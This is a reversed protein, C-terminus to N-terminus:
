DLVDLPPADYWFRRRSHRAERIVVRGKSFTMEVAGSTSTNFQRIGRVQYRRRVSNHPHGFPSFYAASHIVWHPAVKNLFAPSSSSRSGHHPSILLTAPEILNLLQTEAETDIDGPLLIVGADTEIRVVCSNANRTLGADALSVWSVSMDPLPLVGHDCPEGYASDSSIMAQIPLARVLSEVGGAHDDDAHSVVLLDILSRGMGRLAPVLIQQAADTRASSPGTDYVLTSQPGTVIVALGQGVDLVSVKLYSETLPRSLAFLPLWCLLGLWRPIIGRPLLLVLSGFAFLLIIGPDPLIPVHSWGREALFRLLELTVAMLPVLLQLIISALAEMGIAFLIVFVLVLPIIVLGVLPVAILNALMGNLPVQGIWVILLPATIVLALWQTRTLVTLKDFSAVRYGSHAALLGAVACFSLWFGATLPAFPNNLLLLCLAYIVIRSSLLMRKYRVLVLGIATMLLARQVPLGFGVILAYGFLGVTLIALTLSMGVGSLRCVGMLLVAVLGVHLGSVIFLHNTGTRTLTQWVEPDLQTSSGIILAALAGSIKEDQIESALTASMRARLKELFYWVSPSAELRLSKGPVVYGTGHLGQSLQWAEYDFLGFNVTGRPPFLKATVQWLDGVLPPVPELWSLQLQWRPLNSSTVSARFRWRDGIREPTTRVSVTLQIEQGEDDYPVSQALWSQGAWIGLGLGLTLGSLPLTRRSLFAIGTGLAFWLVASQDPLVAFHGPLSVGLCFLLLGPVM